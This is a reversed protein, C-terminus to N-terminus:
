SSAMFVLQTNVLVYIAPKPTPCNRATHSQSINEYCGYYLKQKSLFKSRGELKMENLNRCEGLNHSSNCLTCHPPQKQNNGDDAAAKGDSMTLFGTVKNMRAPREKVTNLDSLAERSFLPDSMLMTEEEIYMIFDELDPQRRHHKSIKSM